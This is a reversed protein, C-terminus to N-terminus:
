PTLTQLKLNLTGATGGVVCRLNDLRRPRQDLLLLGGVEVVKKVFALYAVEPNVPFRAVGPPSALTM